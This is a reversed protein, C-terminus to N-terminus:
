YGELMLLNAGFTKLNYSRAITLEGTFHVTIADVAAVFILAPILGSYIRAFREIFFQWFGYAPNKSREILTYTILFGSLIFFLLVGINQILPMAPSRWPPVFFSIAHGVCVMQAAVARMLDLTASTDNKTRDLSFTPCAVV